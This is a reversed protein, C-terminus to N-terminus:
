CDALLHPNREQDSSDIPGKKNHTPQQNHSEWPKGWREFTGSKPEVGDVMSQRLTDIQTSCTHLFLVSATFNNRSHVGVRRECHPM